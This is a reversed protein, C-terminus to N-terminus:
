RAEVHLAMLWIPLGRAMSSSRALLAVADSPQDYAISIPFVRLM